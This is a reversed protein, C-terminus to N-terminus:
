SVIIMMNTSIILVNTYVTETLCGDVRDIRGGRVARRLQVRAAIRGGRVRGRGTSYLIM